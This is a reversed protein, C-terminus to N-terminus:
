GKKWVVMKINNERVVCIQGEDNELVIGEFGLGDCISKAREKSCFAVREITEGSLLHVTAIRSPTKSIPELEENTEVAKTPLDIIRSVESAAQGQTAQGQTAQGQTVIPPATTATSSATMLRPMRAQQVALQERVHRLPMANNRLPLSEATLSESRTSASKTRRKGTRKRQTRSLDTENRKKIWSDMWSMSRFFVVLFVIAGIVFAICAGILKIVEFAGM